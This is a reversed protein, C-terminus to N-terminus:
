LVGGGHPGHGLPVCEATPAAVHAAPQGSPVYREPAVPWHAAHGCPCPVGEVPAVEAEAHTCHAGRVVAHPGHAAPEYVVPPPAEHASHLGPVHDLATLAGLAEVHAGRM